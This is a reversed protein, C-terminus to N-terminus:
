PEINPLVGVIQVVLVSSGIMYSCKPINNVPLNNRASVLKLVYSLRPTAFHLEESTKKNTAMPKLAGYFETFINNAKQM